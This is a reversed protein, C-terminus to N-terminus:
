LSVHLGEENNHRWRLAKLFQIITQCNPGAASFPVLPDDHNGDISWVHRKRKISGKVIGFTLVRYIHVTTSRCKQVYSDAGLRSAGLGINSATSNHGDLYQVHGSIRVVMWWSSRNM